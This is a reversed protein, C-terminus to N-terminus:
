HGGPAGAAVMLAAVVLLALGLALCVATGLGWRTPGQPARDTTTPRM